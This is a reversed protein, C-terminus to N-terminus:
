KYAKGRKFYQEAAANGPDLDLIRRYASVTKQIDNNKRHIEAMMLLYKTQEAALGEGSLISIIKECADTQAPDINLIKKYLALAMQIHDVSLEDAARYLYQIAKRIDGKRLYLDGLQKLEAASLKQRNLSRVLEKNTLKRLLTEGTGKRRIQSLM